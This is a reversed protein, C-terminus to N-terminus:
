IELMWPFITCNHVLPPRDTQKDTQLTKDQGGIKLPNRRDTQLM